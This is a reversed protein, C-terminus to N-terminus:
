SMVSFDGLTIIRIESIEMITIKRFKNL